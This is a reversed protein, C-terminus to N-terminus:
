SAETAACIRFSHSGYQRPDLGAAELCKRFVAIFQFQSLYSGDEHMLLPGEINSRVAVLQSLAVVPSLGTLRGRFLELSVGKGEQHTKSKRIGIRVSIGSFDVDKRLVGGAIHKSPSVLEGILLAGFFALLFAAQFLIREYIVLCVMLLNGLILRLTTVSVPCRLDRSRLGRHYGKMAQWVVFSKTVDKGGQLKFWFALSALKRDVASVSTGRIFNKVNLYLVLSSGDAGPELGGVEAPM